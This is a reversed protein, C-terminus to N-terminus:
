TAGGPPCVHSCVPTYAVLVLSGSVQTMRTTRELGPRVEAARLPTGHPWSLSAPEVPLRSSVEQSVWAPGLPTWSLAGGAEVGGM